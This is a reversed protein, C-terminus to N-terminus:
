KGSCAAPYDHWIRGDMTESGAKPGLPKGDEGAFGWQKFFFPVGAAQCQDRIAAAWAKEMKRDSGSEGGVVVWHIGDLDLKVAGLLPECSIWRVATVVKRLEPIRRDHAAQNEVSAGLWEHPPPPRNAYRRQTYDAM